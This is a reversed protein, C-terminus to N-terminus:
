RVTVVIALPTAKCLDPEVGECSIAATATVKASGAAVARFAFAVPSGLGGAPSPVVPTSAPVPALISLDSSAESWRTRSGITAVRNFLTLQVTDGVHVGVSGGNDAASLQFVRAAAPPESSGATGNSPSPSTAGTGPAGCGALLLATSLIGIRLRARLGPKM